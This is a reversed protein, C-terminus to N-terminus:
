YYRVTDILASENAILFADYQHLVYYPCSAKPYILARQLM